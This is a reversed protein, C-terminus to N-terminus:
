ADSENLADNIEKLRKELADKERIMDDRSPKMALADPFSWEWDYYEQKLLKKEEETAEAMRTEISKKKNFWKDLYYNMRESSFRLCVQKNTKDVSLGHKEELEFLAFMTGDCSTLAPDTLSLSSVGLVIAIDKLRETRPKRQGNEYKQLMDVSIGIRSSLESLPMNRAERIKRIRQGVRDSANEDNFDAPDQGFPMKQIIM